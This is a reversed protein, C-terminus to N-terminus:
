TTKRAAYLRLRTQIRARTDLGGFSDRAWAETERLLARHDTDPITWQVSYARRTLLGLVDRASWVREWCLANATGLPLTESVEDIAAGRQLLANLIDQTRAGPNPPLVGREAARRLYFSRVPVDGEDERAVWLTGGDGSGNDGPRRLVRWAESLAQEWAAILHFVHASFVAAFAGDCFPLARLDARALHPVAVSAEDAAAAGGSGLRAMMARSVDVGVTRAPHGAALARGYRGTGVGADLLWDHPALDQCVRAAVARAILPPLSRSCDYDGAVRDFSLPPSLPQPSPQTAGLVAGFAIDDPM